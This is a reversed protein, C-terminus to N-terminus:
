ATKKTAVRKKHQQKSPALARIVKIWRSLDFDVRLRKQKYNYATYAKFAQGVETDTPVKM